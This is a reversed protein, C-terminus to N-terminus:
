CLLFIIIYATHGHALHKTSAAADLINSIKGTLWFSFISM